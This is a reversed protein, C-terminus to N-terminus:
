LQVLVRCLLLWPKFHTLTGLLIIIIHCYQGHLHDLPMGGTFNQNKVELFALRPTFKCKPANVCSIIFFVYRPYM